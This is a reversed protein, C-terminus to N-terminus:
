RPKSSRQFDLPWIKLPPISSGSFLTKQQSGTSRAQISGRKSRPPNVCRVSVTQGTDRLKFGVNLAKAVANIKAVLTANADPTPYSRGALRDLIEQFQVRFEPAQFRALLDDLLNEPGPNAWNGKWEKDPLDQLLLDVANSDLEAKAFRPDIAM